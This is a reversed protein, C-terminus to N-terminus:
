KLVVITYFAQGHVLAYEQARLLRRQGDRRQAGQVADRLQMGQKPAAVSAKRPQDERGKLCCYQEHIQVHVRHEWSIAVRSRDWWWTREIGLAIWQLGASSIDRPLSAYLSHM